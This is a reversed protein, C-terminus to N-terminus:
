FRKVMDVVLEDGREHKYRAVEVYGLREYLEINRPLLVRVNIHAEPRGAARGREEMALMMSAGIGHGRFAPLVSLRGIYVHGDCLEYRGSGVTEAGLRALVAGGERIHAAVDEVTEWMASSPVALVSEYEAFAALMMARVTAAEEAGVFALTLAGPLASEATM